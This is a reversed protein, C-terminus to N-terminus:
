KVFFFSVFVSCEAIFFYDCCTDPYDVNDCLLMFVASVFHCVMLRPSLTLVPFKWNTDSSVLSYPIACSCTSCLALLCADCINVSVINPIKAQKQEFGCCQKIKSTHFSRSLNWITTFCATTCVPRINYKELLVIYKSKKLHLTNLVFWSM